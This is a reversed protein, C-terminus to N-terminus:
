LGARYEAFAAYFDDITIGFAGQFADQWTDSSPLLRYYEFLAPEGALSILQDAALFTLAEVPEDRPGGPARYPELDYLTKEARTAFNASRRRIRDLNALRLSDLFAHEAYQRLGVDLWYSGRRKYESPWTDWEGPPALQRLVSTLHFPGLIDAPSQLCRRLVIILTTWPRGTASCAGPPISGIVDRHAVAEPGSAVVYM